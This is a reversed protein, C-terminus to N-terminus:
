TPWTLRRKAFCIRVVVNTLGSRLEGRLIEVQDSLGLGDHILRRECHGLGSGGWFLVAGLLYKLTLSLSLRASFTGRGALPQIDNLALYSSLSGRGFYM